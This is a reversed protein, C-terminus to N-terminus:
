TVVGCGRRRRLRLLFKRRKGAVVGLGATSTPHIHVASRVLTALLPPISSPAVCLSCHRCKTHQKTAPFRSAHQPQMPLVHIRQSPRAHFTKFRQFLVARPTRVALSLGGRLHRCTSRISKSISQHWVETIKTNCKKKECIYRLM